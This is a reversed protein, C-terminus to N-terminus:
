KFTIRIDYPKNWGIRALLLQAVALSKRSSPAHRSRVSTIRFDYCFLFVALRATSSMRKTKIRRLPLLRISPHSSPPHDSLFRIPHIARRPSNSETEIGHGSRPERGPEGKAGIHRAGQLVDPRMAASITKIMVFDGRIRM